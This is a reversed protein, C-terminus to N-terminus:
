ASFVKVETHDLACSAALNFFYPTPGMGVQVQPNYGLLPTGPARGRRQRQQAHFPPPRNDQPTDQMGVGDFSVSSDSLTSEPESLDIRTLTEYQNRGAELLRWSFPRATLISLM